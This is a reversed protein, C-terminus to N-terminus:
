ASAVRAEPLRARERRRQWLRLALWAAISVGPWALWSAHAWWPREFRFQLVHAGKDVDAAIFDPTVRRVPTEVGDVYAHWRPHWSERAMFTTPASVEIEANIDAEDGPSDQRWSRLTKGAPEPGPNGYGAYVLHRNKLPLDTRVWAIAAKRAESNAKTPGDPLVGTIQIPSVLGPTPLRRAIYGETEILDDGVPMSAGKTKDFVLYPADYLWANKPFDRVSWLYDYNPSAQLGGGGMQLLSPIRGYVYSLLNWWHNECGPGVQKRGQPQTELVEIIRMMQPRVSPPESGLVRVRGALVQSGQVSVAVALAAVIMAIVTRVGYQLKEHPMTVLRLPARISRMFWGDPPAHWLAMTISYLATGIGLALVIQMAGLFRVAPILDDATKPMHPGLGLLLAFAIGPIWMWRLIPGRGFVIAIPLACTLVILRMEDLIHGQYFWKALLVFGPGVEDDVRHPFGGFGQADVLMTIWGPLTALALALGVVVLRVTEGFVAPLQARWTLDTRFGLVLRVLAAVFVLGAGAVGWVLTNRGIAYWVALVLVDLLAIVIATLVPSRWVAGKGLVGGTVGLALTLGLSVGGFPHCLGVFAGWAVAPAIGKGERLWRVCHGLALPFAALSWTQTYLGVHFTGDSSFGWRSQGITFSIVFAATMAQWPVAGMLRMGRYAAIPALMLPLFVSLQFFFTHHGFLAAPLASALQPIVQYYYASAYGANASPNWFDWDGASICDAIRRSEAMHFTLDDGVVEGFFVGFYAVAMSIVLCGLAPLAGHEAIWAAARDWADPPAPTVKPASM